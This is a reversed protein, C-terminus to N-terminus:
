GAHGALGIAQAMTAESGVAEVVLEAGRGDTADAVASAGDDPAVAVDIGLRVALDRKAPSRTIGIVTVGQGTLLQALLQGAVGLGLVVATDGPFVPAMRLAHVCTGLVQLLGGDAVPLSDPVVLLQQDAVAAYDAFLGDFDRGLLGGNGCLNPHGRICLRCHGCWVAPDVLVRQGIQFLGGPQARVVVGVGEHGLIVPLAAAIKGSVIGSDTGCLGVAHMQVLARNGPVPEAVEVVRAQGDRGVQVARM